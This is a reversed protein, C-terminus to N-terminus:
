KRVTNGISRWTKGIENLDNGNGSDAKVDNKTERYGSLSSKLENEPHM